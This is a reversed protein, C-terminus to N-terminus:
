AVAERLPLLRAARHSGPVRTLAGRKEMRKIMRCVASVTKIGLEHAIESHTPMVGHKAHHAEMARYCELQGLTLM